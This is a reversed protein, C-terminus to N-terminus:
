CLKASDDADGHLKKAVRALSSTISKHGKDLAQQSTDVLTVRCGNQAAIQAIGAGMLGAGIVTVEKIVCQSTAMSTASFSASSSRLSRSSSPLGVKASFGSFVSVAPTRAILANLRGINM